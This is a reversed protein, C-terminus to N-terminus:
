YLYILFTSTKLHEEVWKMATLFATLEMKNNTTNEEAGCAEYYVKDQYVVVIGWGGKGSNVSGDTYIDLRKMNRRNLCRMTHTRKNQIIINFNECNSEFNLLENINMQNLNLSERIKAECSLQEKPKQNNVIAQLLGIIYM